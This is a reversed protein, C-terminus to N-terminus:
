ATFKKSWVKLNAWKGFGITQTHSVHVRSAYIYIYKKQAFSTPFSYYEKIEDKM